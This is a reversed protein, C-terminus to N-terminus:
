PWVGGENPKDSSEPGEAPTRAPSVSMQVFAASQLTSNFAHTADDCNDGNYWQERSPVIIDISEDFVIGVDYQLDDGCSDM